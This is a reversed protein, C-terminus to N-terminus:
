SKFVDPRTLACLSAGASGFDHGLVCAVEKYGLARVLIIADRVIGLYSFTSLDVDAFSRKDWGTTRGYGRQDYAVVYYGEDALAPM